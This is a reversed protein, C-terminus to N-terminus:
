CESLTIFDAHQRHRLLVCAQPGPLQSVAAESHLLTRVDGPNTAGKQNCSEGRDPVCSLPSEDESAVATSPKIECVCVCVFCVCFICVSCFLKVLPFSPHAFHRICFGVLSLSQITVCRRVRRM